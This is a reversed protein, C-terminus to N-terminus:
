LIMEYENCEMNGISVLIHSESLLVLGAGRWFEWDCAVLNLSRVPSGPSYESDELDQYLRCYANKPRARVVRLCPVSSEQTEDTQQTNIRHYGSHDCYCNLVDYTSFASCSPESM